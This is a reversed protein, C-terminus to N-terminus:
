HGKMSNTLDTSVSSSVSDIIAKLPPVIAEGIHAFVQVLGPAAGLFICVIIFEKVMGKIAKDALYNKVTKYMAAFLVVLLALYIFKQILADM